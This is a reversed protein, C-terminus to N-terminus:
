RMHRSPNTAPGGPVHLWAQSHFRKAPLDITVPTFEAPSLGGYGHRVVDQFVTDSVALVFDPDRDAALASRLPPSDLIRHVGVVVDGVWGNSGRQVVGRDLAVRLRLRSGSDLCRNLDALAIGIGRVLRPLTVVEDLAAPLIAFQSDGAGEFVVAREDIGAYRRASKLVDLLREQARAAEPNRFRSYGEIDVALCLRVGLGARVMPAPRPPPLDPATDDAPLTLPFTWLGAPGCHTLRRRFMTRAASLDVRVTLAVERPQATSAAMLVPSLPSTDLWGRDFDGCNWEVILESGDVRAHVGSMNSLEVVDVAPVIAWRISAAVYRWGPALRGLSVPLRIAM